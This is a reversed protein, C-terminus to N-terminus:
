GLFANCSNVKSSQFTFVSWINDTFSLYFSINQAVTPMSREVACKRGQINFVVREIEKFRLSGKTASYQDKSWACKYQTIYQVTYSVDIKKKKKLHKFIFCCLDSLFEHRSEISWSTNGKAKDISSRLNITHRPLHIVSNWMTDYQIVSYWIDYQIM